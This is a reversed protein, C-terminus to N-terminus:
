FFTSEPRIMAFIAEPRVLQHRVPLSSSVSTVMHTKKGVFSHEKEQCDQSDIRTVVQSKGCSSLLSITSAAM